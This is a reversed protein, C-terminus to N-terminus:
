GQRGRPEPQWTLGGDRTFFLSPQYAWGASRSVFALGVQTSAVPAPYRGDGTHAVPGAAWTRGGDTTREQWSSVVSSAGVFGAITVLGLRASAFVLPSATFKGTLRAAVRPPVSSAGTSPAALPVLTATSLSRSPLRAKGDSANTCGALGVGFLTCAALAVVRVM